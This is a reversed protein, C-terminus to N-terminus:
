PACYIVPEAGVDRCNSVFSSILWVRQPDRGRMQGRRQIRVFSEAIEARSLFSLVLAVRARRAPSVAVEEYARAVEDVTGGRRIRPIATSIKDLRYPEGWSKKKGDLDRRSVGIRGLNKVAQGVVTQFATAGSTLDGYKAHYLTISKAQADIGIYDAWEDGLDDCLLAPETAIRGEIVEFVSAAPFTTSAATLAAEGKESQCAALSPVAQICTLLSPALALIHDDRVIRGLAFAFRIDNMSVFLAEHDPDRLWEPLTRLNTGQPEGIRVNKLVSSSLSYGQKNMKLEFPHVVGEFRVAAKTANLPHQEVTGPEGFVRIAAPALADPVPTPPAGRHGALFVAVSGEAIGEELASLDVFV